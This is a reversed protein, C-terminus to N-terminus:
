GRKCDKPWNTELEGSRQVRRRQQQQRQRQQTEAFGEIVARVVAWRMRSAAMVPLKPGQYGFM